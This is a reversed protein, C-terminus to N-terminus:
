IDYFIQVSSSYPCQFASSDQFIYLRYVFWLNATTLLFKGSLYEPRRMRWRVASMM